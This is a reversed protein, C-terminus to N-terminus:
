APQRHLSRRPRLVRRGAPQGDRQGRLCTASCTCRICSVGSRSRGAASVRAHEHAPRRHVRHRRGPCSAVPQFRTSAVLGAPLSAPAAGPPRGSTRGRRRVELRRAEVPDKRAAMPTTAHTIRGGATLGHADPAPRQLRGQGPHRERRQQPAQARAAPAVARRQRERGLTTRPRGLPSRAREPSGMSASASVSNQTWM